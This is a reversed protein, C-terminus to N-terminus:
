CKGRKKIGLEIDESNNGKIRNNESDTAICNKKTKVSLLFFGKARRYKKQNGKWVGFCRKLGM